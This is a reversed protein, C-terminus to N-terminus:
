LEVCICDLCIVKLTDIILDGTLGSYYSIVDGPNIIEPVEPKIEISNSSEDIFPDMSNTDTFSAIFADDVDLVIRDQYVSIQDTELHNSPSDLEQSVGFGIFSFSMPTEKDFVISTSILSNLLFGIAFTVLIVGFLQYRHM